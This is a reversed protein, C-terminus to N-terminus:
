KTTYKMFLYVSIIGVIFLFAQVLSISKPIVSLLTAFLFGFAAYYSYGHHKKFAMNILKLTLLIFVLAGLGIFFVNYVNLTVFSNIVDDYLGLNILNNSLLKGILFEASIYYVKKQGSIPETADLMGKTLQLIGYYLEADSCDAIKKGYNAQLISELQEELKLEIVERQLTM